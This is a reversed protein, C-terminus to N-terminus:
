YTLGHGFPYLVTAPDGAVPIDVPLSATPAVDGVIVRAAAEIAVPSYSYTAVYTPAATFYAIDYPDRVAVVVVPKGTALLQKVLKQQGGRTDTVSTDWAKMTTVVVVDKDAAAAVASAVATDTPSAGTQVTQVTAGKATLAAALTATTSVGYGTVLIKTGSPAIPLAKADNKVLTTTRDTVTAASALHAPTGVVSAVATPDAYPRAVIGRRYKLGLVRRVKADLESPHIRHSRVAAIVAAYADDMAPTMLLQDVGALLARVAVEADGYLDRVGQMALSDTVIVGEYGLEERLVGTMIPKSLTAPNGSDDLAPFSLHATMIMDIQENIAAKFPPADITEWQERTHTIIPFAVHSDTATDGHGPFHKASSAVGGDRQYGAVQAAALEAALAARSSFSRTGIVPNLPNVNVDCDPAFNTNVGMALLERGTIAAATRADPASRGAGLAMSGPFQTAPPGIRTVVGQEQDTAIQLPIHVKSQQTLAAKQLGNSLGVIQDPNQVSDTWAFYIVGGLHYKQVVEAPSAVGYLPLNRSDPTTADKGYVNQIFLQGVKEELSMRNITATIWGDEGTVAATSASSAARASGATAGAAAAAM